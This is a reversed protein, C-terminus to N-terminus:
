KFDKESAVPDKYVKMRMRSHFTVTVEGLKSVEETVGLVLPDNEDQGGSKLVGEEGSDLWEIITGVPVPYSLPVWDVIQSLYRTYTLFDIRDADYGMDLYSELEQLTVKEDMGMGYKSMETLASIREEVSTMPHYIYEDIQHFIRSDSAHNGVWPLNRIESSHNVKPCPTPQFRNSM